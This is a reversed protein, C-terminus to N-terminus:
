IPSSPAIENAHAIAEKAYKPNLRIPAPQAAKLGGLPSGQKLNLGGPESAGAMDLWKAWMPNIQETNFEPVQVTPQYGEPQQWRPAFAANLGQLPLM